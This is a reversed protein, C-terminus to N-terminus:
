RAVKERVKEKVTEEAAQVFSMDPLLGMKVVQAGIDAVDKLAEQMGELAPAAHEYFQGAMALRCAAQINKEQGMFM